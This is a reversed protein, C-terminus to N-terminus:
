MLEWNQEGIAILRNFLADRNPIATVAWDNGGSDTIGLSDNLRKDLAWGATMKTKFGYGAHKRLATITSVPVSWITENNVKFALSAPAASRSDISLVGARGEYRAEFEVPGIIPDHKNSPVVGLRNKAGPHGLKARTKDLVISGRVGLKAAGKMIRLVKHPEKSNTKSVETDDGGAEDLVEYDPAAAELLDEPSAGLPLDDGVASIINETLPIPAESVGESMLTPPPPLPAKQKEGHRLLALALQNNNPVGHLIHSHPRTLLSHM